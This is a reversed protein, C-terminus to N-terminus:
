LSSARSVAQILEAPEVSVIGPKECVVGAAINAISAAEQVTGGAAVIAAITAIVTDGAGSVDAVHRARTPVSYDNGNASFLMMGKAGLTILVHECELKELLEKGASAVEEETNINKGLADQSEKKNPKFLTVGRYRFFHRFKPDVFVPIEYQRCREIIREILSPTLVGKDYDELIVGSLTERNAEFAAFLEEETTKGVPKNLERDIRVIQQNNGIVRTKVTTPREADTAIGQTNLGHQHFLERVTRGSNDNGVVGILLPTVGLSRLNAAVNSAGGLHFSEDVIDVVPVPAEPSIRSVNGWFYRDLMIDGIVAVNKDAMAGLLNELRQTSVANM